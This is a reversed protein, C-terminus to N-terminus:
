ASGLEMRVAERVMPDIGEATTLRELLPRYRDRHASANMHVVAGTTIRRTSDSAARLVVDILAPTQDAWQILAQFLVDLDDLQREQRVALEMAARQEPEPLVLLEVLAAERAPGSKGLLADILRIVADSSEEGARVNLLSAALNLYLALDIDALSPRSAAWHRTDDSVEEPRAAGEDGRGWAEWEQMLTARRARAAGALAEFSNRHLDELLLMKMLVSPAIEVGRSHSVISRVGFANLFRKIQRPNALRDASLGQALQASLDLTDQSPKGSLTGLDALLPVAGARRRAAVHEALGALQSPGTADGSALLLGIYAEADAGALRPLTVPLQIIKELYRTAFASSRNTDGLTAAISDRVMEQDAAIVFVMKPVALFLKIAELTAMVAPAPM